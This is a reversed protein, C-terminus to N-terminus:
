QLLIQKFAQNAQAISCDHNVQHPISCTFEVQSIICCFKVKLTHVFWLFIDAHAAVYHFFCFFFLSVVLLESFMVVFYFYFLFIDYWRKMMIFFCFIADCVYYYSYFNCMSNVTKQIQHKQKQQKEDFLM